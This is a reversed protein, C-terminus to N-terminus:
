DYIVENFFTATDVIEGDFKIQIQIIENDYQDVTVCGDVTMHEQLLSLLENKDM